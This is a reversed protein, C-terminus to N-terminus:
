RRVARDVVFCSPDQRPSEEMVIRDIRAVADCPSQHDDVGLSQAVVRTQASGVHDFAVAIDEDPEALFV